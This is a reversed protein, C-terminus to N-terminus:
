HIHSTLQLSKYISKKLILHNEKIELNSLNKKIVFLHQIKGFAKEGDVSIISRMLNQPEVNINIFGAWKQHGTWVSARERHIKPSGLTDRNVFSADRLNFQVCGKRELM